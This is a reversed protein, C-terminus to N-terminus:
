AAGSTGECAVFSARPGGHPCECILCPASRSLRGPGGPPPACPPAPSILAGTRCRGCLGLKWGGPGAAPERGGTSADEDAVEEHQQHRPQWCLARSATLALRRSTVFKRSKM